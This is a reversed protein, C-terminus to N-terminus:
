IKAEGCPVLLLECFTFALAQAKNAEAEARAQKEYEGAKRERNAKRKQQKRYVELAAIVTEKEDFTM